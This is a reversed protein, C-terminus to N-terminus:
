AAVLERAGAEAAIMKGAKEAVKGSVVMIVAFSCAFIVISLWFVLNVKQATM